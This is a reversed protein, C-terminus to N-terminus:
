YYQCGLERVKLDDGGKRSTRSEIARRKSCLLAFLALPMGLVYVLAMLLAYLIIADYEPDKHPGNCAITMDATMFCDFTGDGNDFESVAFASCVTTAVTPVLIYIVMFVYKLWSGSSGPGIFQGGYCAVYAGRIALM